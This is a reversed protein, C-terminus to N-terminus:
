VAPAKTGSYPLLMKDVLEAAPVPRGFLYGQFLPCGRSKLFDFQEATEIGEAVVRLDHHHAIALIAEVLATDNPNGPVDQIFSRDIKLEKLPLNKLYGLSSYGTGFDDISFGIGLQSIDRMKATAAKADHLLVSETIELTLHAPNIETTTIIQKVQEPFVALQFQRLSVNVSLRFAAGALELKRLMCCAERLMFEGMPVILGTDEAVPIFKAPSILGGQRHQWRILAEAGILTGSVDVQPQLFVRFDSRALAEHLDHVLVTTEKIHEQMVPEFYCCTNRGSEKARHMAIDAQTILDAATVNQQPFITIGISATLSYESHDIKIPESIVDNLRRLVVQLQEVTREATTAINPLLLIFEDGSLRGVTDSERLVGQLRRAMTRLLENGAEHGQVDNVHKFQDLDLFLLAGHDGTRRATTLHRDLRDLILQRNPIDTLADFFALYELKKEAERRATIDNQNGVWSVLNGSKDRVPSIAVECWYATGDKRFNKLITRVARQEKIAARIEERGTQNHEQGQLFRPNKGRVEALTYGTLREFASNVYLIHTDPTADTIIIGNISCEIVRRFLIVGAQATKIQTQDHVVSYIIKRGAIELAISYVGVDRIEGSSLRYKFEFNTRSGVVLQRLLQRVTEEPLTNIDWIQLSKLKAASYGYFEVAAENCDVIDGSQADILLTIEGSKEFLVRFHQADFRLPPPSNQPQSM